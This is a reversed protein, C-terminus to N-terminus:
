KWGERVCESYSSAMEALLRAAEDHAAEENEGSASMYDLNGYQDHFRYVVNYLM